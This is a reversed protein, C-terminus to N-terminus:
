IRYLRIITISRFIKKNRSKVLLARDKWSGGKYVRTRDSILTTNGYNYMENSNSMFNKDKYKDVDQNWKDIMVSTEDTQSKETTEDKWSPTWKLNSIEM